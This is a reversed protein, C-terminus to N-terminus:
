PKTRAGGGRAGTPASKGAAEAAHGDLVSTGRRLVKMRRLAAAPVGGAIYSAAEAHFGNPIDANTGVLTMGDRIQAPYDINKMTSTKAGIACNDGINPSTRPVEATFPLILASRVETGAGIRNGNMVVSRSVVANRRILVNPFIISDEVTGEVEVGSAIWSDKIVGKEAIHSEAGRDALEPLRGIIRHYRESQCNEIVWMNSAYYQMLDNQFLIEGPLDEILDIASHLTGEFLSERLRKKGQGREAASQLLRVAHDKQTCYMDLPTRAVSIKVVQHGAGSALAVLQAPEIVFVSSLSALVLNESPSASILRALEELGGELFHVRAVPKKWRASLALSAARSSEDLVITVETDDNGRVNALMFDALCFNGWFPLLSFHFDEEFGPLKQFLGVDFLFVGTGSLRCWRGM